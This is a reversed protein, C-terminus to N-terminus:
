EKLLNESSMIEIAKKTENAGNNLSGPLMILRKKIQGDEDEFMVEFRTRTIGLIAKKFKIEKINSRNIIPTASNKLSTFIGYVLYFGILTLFIPLGIEGIKFSNFATYFLLLSLGGYIILTQTVSKGVTAKALNGIVGDRTLIIKDDLIHCFGTKTRFRKDSEM